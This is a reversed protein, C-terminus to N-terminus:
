IPRYIPKTLPYWATENLATIAAMSNRPTIILVPGPITFVIMAACVVRALSIAENLAAGGVLAEGRAAPPWRTVFRVSRVGTPCGLTVTPALLVWLPPRYLATLYSM